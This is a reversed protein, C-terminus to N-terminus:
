INKWTRRKLIDRIADVSMQPYFSQIEKVSLGSKGKERIMLVDEKSLKANANKEGSHALSARIKKNELTFVEPMILSFRHGMYIDWFTTEAVKSKYDEYVEHWERHNKYDNRIRIIDDYELKTRTFQCSFQLNYPYMEVKPIIDKRIEDRYLQKFYGYSIIDSFENYLVYEPQNRNDKIYQIQEDTIKSKTGGHLGGKALNYGNPCLTSEEKIIKIEMEEAEEISLNEAIIEYSFSDKGYKSIARSIPCDIYGKIHQRMRRKFNTTIGIYKKGNILNTIKYCYM